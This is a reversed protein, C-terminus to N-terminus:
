LDEFRNKFEVPANTPDLFEYDVYDDISLDGPVVDM